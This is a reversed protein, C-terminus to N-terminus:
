VSGSCSKDHFYCCPSISCYYPTYGMIFVGLFDLNVVLYQLAFFNGSGYQHCSRFFNQELTRLHTLNSNHTWQYGRCLRIEDRIRSFGWFYPIKVMKLVKKLTNHIFFISTDSWTASVKVSIGTLPDNIMFQGQSSPLISGMSGTSITYLTHITDNECIHLYVYILTFLFNHQHLGIEQEQHLYQTHLEQLPFRLSVM